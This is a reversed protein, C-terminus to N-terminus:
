NWLQKAKTQKSKAININNESSKSVKDIKDNRINDNISDNKEKSYDM